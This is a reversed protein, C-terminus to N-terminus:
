WVEDGQGLYAVPDDYLAVRVIGDLLLYVSDGREAMRRALARGMGKTAGLLVAKVRGSM